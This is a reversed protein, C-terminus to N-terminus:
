RPPDFLAAQVPAGAPLVCGVDQPDVLQIFHQHQLADTTSSRYPGRLEVCENEGPSYTRLHPRWRWTHHDVDVTTVQDGDVAVVVFWRVTRFAASDVNRAEAWLQGPVVRRTV